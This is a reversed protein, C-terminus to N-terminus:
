EINVRVQAVGSLGVPEAADSKTATPNFRSQDWMILLSKLGFGGAHDAGFASLGILGNPMLRADALAMDQQGCSCWRGAGGM